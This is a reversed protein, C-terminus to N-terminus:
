NGYVQEIAKIVARGFHGDPTMSPEGKVYKCFEELQWLMGPLPYKSCDGEIIEGNEGHITCGSSGVSIIGKEFYYCTQHFSTSYGSFTVAASVNDALKVIFQAQGEIDNETKVNAIASAVEVDQVGFISFIKDFAHAGYNMMIGGGAKEKSLFWKPRSEAFYNVSRTEGYMCLKGLEGSKMKDIVFQTTSFFRQLHGVALKKGSKEAAEIMRDCEEVTNAMPKEVLVHIGHELFFISAECHLFHPLNLIVADVDVAGPIEKYDLFYPVNKEKALEKVQAENVDCLACLRCSDTKEMMNLHSMGIIGTGVVAINLM